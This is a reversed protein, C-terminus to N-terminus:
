HSTCHNDVLFTALVCAISAFSILPGGPVKEENSKLTAQENSKLVGRQRLCVACSKFNREHEDSTWDLLVEFCDTHFTCSYERRQRLVFITGNPAMEVLHRGARAEDRARETKIIAFLENRSDGCYKSEIHGSMINRAKLAERNGCHPRQQLM